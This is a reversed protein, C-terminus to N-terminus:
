ILDMIKTLIESESPYPTYLDYKKSLAKNIAGIYASKCRQRVVLDPHIYTKTGINENVVVNCGMFLGDVSVRPLADAISPVVVVKHENLKNLYEHRPARSSGKIGGGVITLESNYHNKLELLLGKGKIKRKWNAAVAIIPARLGWPISEPYETKDFWTPIVTIKDSIDSSHCLNIVSERIFDSVAIVHRCRKVAKRVHRSSDELFRVGSVRYFVNKFKQCLILTPFHTGTIIHTPRIKRLKRIVDPPWAKKPCSPISMSRPLDSGKNILLWSEINNKLCLKHFGYFSEGSGGAGTKEPSVWAIKM